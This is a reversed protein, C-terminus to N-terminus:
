KKFRPKVEQVILNPDEYGLEPGAEYGAEVYMQELADEKDEAFFVGLTEKTTRNKIRYKKSTNKNTM